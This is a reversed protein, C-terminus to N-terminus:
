IKKKELLLRCVLHRLSQLESTHEESRVRNPDAIHSGEWPSRLLMGMPMYREWFAMTEGFVQVELGNAARLHAAASLGYPGAGVITCDISKMEGGERKKLQSFSGIKQVRAAATKSILVM